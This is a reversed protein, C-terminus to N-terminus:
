GCQIRTPDFNPVKLCVVLNSGNLDSFRWDSSTSENCPLVPDNYATIIETDSDEIVVCTLFYYVKLCMRIINAGDSYM